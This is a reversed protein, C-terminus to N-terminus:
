VGSLRLAMLLAHQRRKVLREFRILRYRTLLRPSLRQGANPRVQRGQCSDVYFSIATMVTIVNM